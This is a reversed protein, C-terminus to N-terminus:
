HLNSRPLKIHDLFEEWEQEKRIYWTAWQEVDRLDWEWLYDWKLTVVLFKACDLVEMFLYWVGVCLWVKSSLTDWAPGPQRCLQFHRKFNAMHQLHLDRLPPGSLFFSHHQVRFNGLHCSLSVTSMLTHPIQWLFSCFCLPPYTGLSIDCTSYTVSNSPLNM